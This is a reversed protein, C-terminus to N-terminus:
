SRKLTAQIRSLNSAPLKCSEQKEEHSSWDQADEYIQLAKKYHHEAESLNNQQECASGINNECYGYIKMNSAKADFEKELLRQAQENVQISKMFNDMKNCAYGYCKLFGAIAKTKEHTSVGAENQMAELIKDMFSFQQQSYDDLRRQSAVIEAIPQCFRGINHFQSLRKEGSLLTALLWRCKNLVVAPDLYRFRIFQHTLTALEVCCTYIDEPDERLMSTVRKSDIMFEITRKLELVMEAGKGPQNTECFRM